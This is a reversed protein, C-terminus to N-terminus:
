LLLQSHELGNLKLWLALSNYLWAMAGYSQQWCYRYQLYYPLRFPLCNLKSSHMKLGERQHLLSRPAQQRQATQHGNPATHPTCQPRISASLFSSSFIPPLPLAAYPQSLASIASPKATLHEAKSPNLSSSHRRYHHPPSHSSTARLSPTM